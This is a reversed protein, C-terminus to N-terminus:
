RDRDPLELTEWAARWITRFDVGDAIAEMVTRSRLAHLSTQAAWTRAYSM